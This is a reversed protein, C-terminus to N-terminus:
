ARFRLSSKKAPDVFAICMDYSYQIYIVFFIYYYTFQIYM